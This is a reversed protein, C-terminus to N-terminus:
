FSVGMLFHTQNKRTASTFAGWRTYRFEPLLAVKGANYRIGGALVAGVNLPTRFDSKNKYNQTSLATGSTVSSQSDGHNWSVQLAYGTSLFPQWTRSRSGIYYKALIPFQWSNGRERSTYTSTTGREPDFFSANFSSGTRQYLADIEVAFNAPLRIEVSPGVIYRRSEDNQGPPSSIPVGGKVGFSVRQDQADAVSFSCGLLSLFVVTYKRM